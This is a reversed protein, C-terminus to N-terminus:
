HKRPKLLQMLISISNERNIIREICEIVQLQQAEKVQHVAVLCEIFEVIDKKLEKVDTLLEIMKKLAEEEQPSGARIRMKKKKEKKEMTVDKGFKMVKVSREAHVNTNDARKSLEALSEVPTVSLLSNGRSEASDQFFSTMGSIATIGTMASANTSQSWVSENDKIEEEREIKKEKEEKIAQLRSVVRTLKEQKEKMQELSSQYYAQIAPLIVTEIM